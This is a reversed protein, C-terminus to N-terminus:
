EAAEAPPVLKLKSRKETPLEQKAALPKRFEISGNWATHVNVVYVVRGRGRYGDEPRRERTLVGLEELTAMIKTVSSPDCGIEEALEERTFPLEATDQELCCLVLMFADRVQVPRKSPPLRRIRDYVHKVQVRSIVNYGGPFISGDPQALRRLAGQARSILSRASRPLGSVVDQPLDRLVDAAASLAAREEHERRTVLRSIKAM